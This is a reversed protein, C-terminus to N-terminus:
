RLEFWASFAQVFRYYHNPPVILGASSTNNDVFHVTHWVIDDASVQLWSGNTNSNLSRVSVSIPRGSTNQYKTNAIRSATLNQWSQDYGIGVIADIQRWPSEVWTGNNGNFERVREWVGGLQRPNVYDAVSLRWVQDVARDSMCKREMLLIDANGTAIMQAPAGIVQNNGTVGFANLIYIGSVMPTLNINASPVVTANSWGINSGWRPAGFGFYWIGDGNTHRHWGAGSGDPNVMEETVFGRGSVSGNIGDHQYNAYRTWGVQGNSRRDEWISSTSASPAEAFVINVAGIGGTFRQGSISAKGALVLNIAAVARAIMAAVAARIQAVGKQLPAAGGDQHEILDTLERQVDNCWDPTLQTPPLGAGPDEPVFQGNVARHGDIKHM